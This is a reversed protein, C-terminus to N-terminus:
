TSIPAKQLYWVLTFCLSDLTGLPNYQLYCVLALCRSYSAWLSVYPLTVHFILHAVCKLPFAVCTMFFSSYKSLFTPLMELFFMELALLGQSLAYRPDFLYLLAVPTACLDAKLCFISFIIKTPCWCWLNGWPRSFNPTWNALTFLSPLEEIYIHSNNWTVSGCFWWYSCTLADHSQPLILHFDSAYKRSTM